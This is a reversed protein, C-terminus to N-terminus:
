HHLCFLCTFHLLNLSLYTGAPCKCPVPHLSVRHPNVGAEATLFGRQLPSSLPFLMGFVPFQSPLPGPDPLLLGHSFFLLPDSHCSHFSSPPCCHSSLDPPFCPWMGRPRAPWPLFSLSGLDPHPLPVVQGRPNSPSSHGPPCSALTSATLSSFQPRWLSVDM